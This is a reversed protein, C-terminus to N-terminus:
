PTTDPTKNQAQASAAPRTSSPLASTETSPATTSKQEDPKKNHSKEEKVAEAQQEQFQLRVKEIAVAEDKDASAVGYLASMGVVAMILGFGGCLYNARRQAEPTTWVGWTIGMTWLGNALHYVCSLVGIAYAVKAVMPALAAAATSTAHQWDFNAGNLKAAVSTKWWDAHIWGHMHFVHWFIFLLAIWATARQLTYRVNGQYHYSSLNSQGSRIIMVGVVAHFIIPLFIFTWEVLPLAPGLSHIKDVNDQFSGAGALVSVNTLLHVCMYAGVPILGTLSHLRRILFENRTFFSLESPSEV